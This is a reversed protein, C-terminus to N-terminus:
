EMWYLGAGVEAAGGGSCVVTRQTKVNHDLIVLIVTIVWRVSVASLILTSLFQSICRKDSLLFFSAITIESLTTLICGPKTSKLVYSVFRLHPSIIGAM